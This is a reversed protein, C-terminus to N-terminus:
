SVQDPRIKENVLRRADKETPVVIMTDKSKKYKIKTKM